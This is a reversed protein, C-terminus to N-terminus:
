RKQRVRKLFFPVAFRIRRRWAAEEHSAGSEEVYFLDRRLRYGKDMLLDRMRRVDDLTQKGEQTGIDLYIKGPTFEAKEVYGFIARKGFWFAPSMVGAVGFVDPNRFFAYLSILGGMSSGAICTHERDPLTRFDRDILPKLTEAIFDLYLDGKGGGLKPERFPSYEDLRDAGMNPIAVVIAEIGRQGLMEMTGDVHWEVSFSTEQDFLNQGDHMYLVPYRRGSGSYSPPLYVLIGRHNELQPSWLGELRKVDGEVTPNEDPVPLYDTWTVDDSPAPSTESTM